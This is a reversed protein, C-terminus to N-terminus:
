AVDELQTILAELRAHSVRTDSASGRCTDAFSCTGCKLADPSRPFCGMKIMRAVSAIDEQLAKMKHLNCPTRIRPDGREEGASKGGTARKYPIHQRLHYLTLTDVTLHPQILRGDVLLTGFRLAYAYIGLQYDIDVFAQSPATKGTKFDVLELTGDPHQRVQDITGTLTHRGMKVTFQAEAMLVKCARNSDKSRYGELMAMADTQFAEREEDEDKWRIPLIDSAEEHRTTLSTRTM